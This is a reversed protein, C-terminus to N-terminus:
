SRDRAGRWHLVRGRSASEGLYVPVGRPVKALLGYHDFHAHSLVVGLLSPDGARALGPVAPLPLDVDHDIALPWGLDLVLRAGDYEVEVCNGGVEHAGRHIRVRVYEITAAFPTQLEM